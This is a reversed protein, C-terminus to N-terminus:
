WLPGTPVPIVINGAAGDTFDDFATVTDMNSNHWWASDGGTLPIADAWSIEEVDDVTVVVNGGTYEIRVKIANTRDWSGSSIDRFTTASGDDEILQVDGFVDGALSVFEAYYGGRTSTAQIGVAVDNNGHDFPQIIIECFDVDTSETNRAGAATFAATSKCQNSQIEFNGVPFVDASGEQGVSGYTIGPVGDDHDTLATDNDNTFSDSAM